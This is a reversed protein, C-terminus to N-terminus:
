PGVEFTITRRQCEVKGVCVEAEYTYRGARAGPPIPQQYRTLHRGRGRSENVAQPYGPLLKGDLRLVRAEVVPQTGAALEIDYDILLDLIQGNRVVPPDARIEMSRIPHSAEAGAPVATLSPESPPEPLALKVDPAEPLREIFDVTHYTLNREVWAPTIREDDLADRQVLRGTHRSGFPFTWPRHNILSLYIERGRETRAVFTIGDRYIRSGTITAVTGRPAAIVRYNKNEMWPRFGTIPVPDTFGGLPDSDIAAYEHWDEKLVFTRGIFRDRIERYRQASLQVGSGIAGGDDAVRQPQVPTTTGCAALLLAVLLWACAGLMATMRTRAM